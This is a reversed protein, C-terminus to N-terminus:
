RLARTIMAAVQDVFVSGAVTIAGALFAVIAVDTNTSPKVPPDSNTFIERLM